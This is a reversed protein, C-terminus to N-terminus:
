AAAQVLRPIGLFTRLRKRVLKRGEKSKLECEWVILLKWGADALAEAKAKDRLVAAIQPVYKPTYPQHWENGVAHAHWFCGNCEIAVKTQLLAIDLARKKGRQYRHDFTYDTQFEVGLKRLIRQVRREPLSDKVPQCRRLPIGFKKVRDAITSTTCHFCRAIEPITLKQATYLGELSEKTIDPRRERDPWNGAEITRKAWIKTATVTDRRKVGSRELRDIITTTDVKLEAALSSASRGDKYQVVIYADDLEKAAFSKRVSVGQASMYSRVTLGDLGTRNAIERISHGAKYLSVIESSKEAYKRWEYKYVGALTLRNIVIKETTEVERAIARPGKGTQYLQLIREADVEVRGPCKEIIVGAERLRSKVLKRSVGLSAALASLSERAKYRAVLVASNLHIQRKM